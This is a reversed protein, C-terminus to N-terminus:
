TRCCYLCIRKKLLKQNVIKWESLVLISCQKFLQILHLTSVLIVRTHLFCNLSGAHQMCEAHLYASLLMVGFSYVVHLLSQNPNVRERPDSLSGFCTKGHDRCVTGICTSYGLAQLETNLRCKLVVFKLSNPCCYNAIKSVTTAWNLTMKFLSVM